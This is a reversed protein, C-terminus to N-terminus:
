PHYIAGGCSDRIAGTVSKLTNTKRELRLYGLFAFILAEKFDILSDDPICINANSSKSLENILYTNHAGGGTVLMNENRSTCASINLVIHQVVTNMLDPISYRFSDLLPIISGEVWERGLSKPPPLQYYSLKNLLDLLEPLLKGSEAMEGNKDYEFGALGALYNLVMNAPCIDFAIRQENSQYSINAIGGLNLCYHYDSFLLEDGIPVLPAGQGGLGVDTSRFDSICPIGSVCSIAAGSGIQYSIGNQPQHFVTHGHSCIYDTQLKEIRIFDKVMTGILVGFETNLQILELGSLQSAESLREKWGSSYPISTAAHITYSYGNNNDFSCVALDLGDLSTGSMIGLFHLQKSM